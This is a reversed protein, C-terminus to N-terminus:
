EGSLLAAAIRGILRERQVPTVPRRQLLVFARLIPLYPQMMGALDTLGALRAYEAQVSANITRPLEPDVDDAVLETLTVHCRGIDFVAPARVACAWDVIKPGNATMIVNGPHLDAHCLGDAPPLRDVLGLVGAAVDEPLVDRDSRSVAAMWDRLSVVGPAAATKHVANYLTALIAGAQAWTVTRDVLQRQLTPGDYRPLVMGFRDDLVVEGLVEPAPGGAAFVARTMRAEHRGVRSPAGPRFLKVVRGPAWAHIEAAAGEGIKEGLSGQM